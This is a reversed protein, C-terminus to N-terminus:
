RGGDPQAATGVVSACHGDGPPSPIMPSAPARVASTAPSRVAQTQSGGALEAVRMPAPDNISPSQCGTDSEPDSPAYKTAAPVASPCTPIWDTSGYGLASNPNTALEASIERLDELFTPLLDSFCTLCYVVQIHSRLLGRQRLTRAHRLISMMPAFGCGGGILVTETEHLLDPSLLGYPGQVLIQEGAIVSQLAQTFEGRTQRIVLEIHPDEPENSITFPHTTGWTKLGCLKVQRSIIVFQGAKRKLFASPPLSSSHVLEMLAVQSGRGGWSISDVTWIGWIRDRIVCLFRLVAAVGGVVGTFLTVAQQNPDHSLAYGHYCLLGLGAYFLLHMNKWIWRPLFGKKNGVKRLLTVFSAAVMGWFVYRGYVLPAFGTVGFWWLVVDLFDKTKGIMTFLMHLGGAILVGGALWKHVSILATLGWAKELPFFRAGVLCCYSLLINCYLGTLKSLYSMILALAGTKPWAAVSAVVTAWIFPATLLLLFGIRKLTLISRRM